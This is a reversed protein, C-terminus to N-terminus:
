NSSDAEPCSSDATSQHSSRYASLAARVARRGDDPSCPVPTDHAISEAFALWQDRYSRRFTGGYRIDLISPLARATRGLGRLRESVTGAFVGRPTVHVGDFCYFSLSVKAADGYIDLVNEETGLASTFSTALVDGELRATVLAHHGAISEADGSMAIDVIEKGSLYRWLDFHHVATEFLTSGGTTPAKRWPPPNRDHRFASTWRGHICEIRGAHGQALLARARQVHPHFRMSHGICVKCPSSAARQVLDDAEGEDLTMPKELLVHKGAEIAKSALEHHTQPPTLVAVAPLTNDVILEYPDRSRRPIAFRDAVDALREADLDAVAAVNIGPISALAPLHLEEAAHGCGIVGVQLSGSM